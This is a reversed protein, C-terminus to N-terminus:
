FTKKSQLNHYNLLHLKNINWHNIKSKHEIYTHLSECVCNVFTTKNHQHKKLSLLKM